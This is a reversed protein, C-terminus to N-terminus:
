RLSSKSLRMINWKRSRTTRSAEYEIRYERGHEAVLSYNFPIAELRLKDPGLIRIRRIHLQPDPLELVKVPPGELRGKQIPFAYLANDRASGALLLKEGSSHALAITLADFGPLEQLIQGSRPNLHYIVGKQSRYDSEDLSSTWLTGDECDYALSILGYPNRASPHIDEFRKLPSLRGTQSDMKYLFRQHEFTTPEISIFPMPALYLNGMPDLAYTGLPGFREWEKRHLVRGFRPGYLFAIGRYARQTLDIRIPTRGLQRSLFAPPRACRRLPLIPGSLVAPTATPTPKAPAASHRFKLLVAFLIGVAALALLIPVLRRM